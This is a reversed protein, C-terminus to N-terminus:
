QLIIPAMTLEVQFNYNSQNTDRSPAPTRIHTHISDEEERMSQAASPGSRSNRKRSNAMIFLHVRPSHFKFELFPLFHQTKFWVRGLSFDQVIGLHAIPSPRPFDATYVEPSGNYDGQQQCPSM